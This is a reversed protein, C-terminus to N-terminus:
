TTDKDLSTLFSQARARLGDAHPGAETVSYRALGRAQEVHGDSALLRALQFAARASPGMFERGDFLEKALGRCSLERMTIVKQEFTQRADDLAALLRSLEASSPTSSWEGELRHRFVCEYEKITKPNPRCEGEDPIAIPQGGLNVFFRDEWRNKQFNIVFILDAAIRRYNQGSGGYGWSHMPKSVEQLLKASM